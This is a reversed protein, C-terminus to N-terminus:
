YACCISVQQFFVIQSEDLGFFSRRRFFAKTNADTAASTMIYWRIPKRCM